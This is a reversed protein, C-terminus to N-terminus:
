KCASFINFVYTDQNPLTNQTKAKPKSSSTTSPSSAALIRFARHAQVTDHFVWCSPGKSARTIWSTWCLQWGLGSLLSTDAPHRANLRWDSLSPREQFQALDRPLHFLLALCPLAGLFACLQFQPILHRQDRSVLLGLRNGSLGIDLYLWINYGEPNRPRSPGM